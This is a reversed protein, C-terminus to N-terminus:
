RAGNRIVAARSAPHPLRAAPGAAVPTAEQVNEDAAARQTADDEPKRIEAATKPANEEESGGGFAATLLRKPVLIVDGKRTSLGQAPNAKRIASYNAGDGTFWEAIQWLTEGEIGRGAVVIVALLAALIGLVTLVVGVVTM